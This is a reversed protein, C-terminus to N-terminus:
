PIEIQFIQVVGTADKEYTKLSNDLFALAHNGDFCYSVPTLPFGDYDTPVQKVKDATIDYMWLKSYGETSGCEFGAFLLNGNIGIPPMMMHKALSKMDHWDMDGCDYYKPTPENESNEDSMIVASSVSVIVKDDVAGLLAYPAGELTGLEKHLANEPSYTHLSTIVQSKDESYCYDLWFLNTESSYTGYDVWSISAIVEQKRTTLNYMIINGPIGMGFPYEDSSDTAVDDGNEFEIWFVKDDVVSLSSNLIKREETNNTLQEIKEAQYDCYLIQEFAGFDTYEEFVFGSDGVSVIKGFSASEYQSYYLQRTILANQPDYEVIGDFLSNSQRDIKAAAIIKGGFVIPSHIGSEIFPTQVPSLSDQGFSSIETGNSTEKQKRVCAVSIVALAVIAILISLKISRMM